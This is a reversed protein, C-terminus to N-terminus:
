TGGGVYYYAALCLMASMGSVRYRPYSGQVYDRYLRMYPEPIRQDATLEDLAADVMFAYPKIDSDIDVYNRRECVHSSFIEDALVVLRRLVVGIETDFAMQVVSRASPVAARSTTAANLLRGRLLDANILPLPQLILQEFPTLTGQWCDSDSVTTFSYTGAM